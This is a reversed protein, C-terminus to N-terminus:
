AVGSVDDFDLVAVSAVVQERAPQSDAPGSAPLLLDGLDLPSALGPLDAIEIVGLFDLRLDFSQRDVDRHLRSVTAFKKARHGAGVDHVGDLRGTAREDLLAVHLDRREDLLGTAM